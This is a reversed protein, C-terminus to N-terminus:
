SESEKEYDDHVLEGQANCNWCEHDADYDYGSGGCPRCYLHGESVVYGCEKTEKAALEYWDDADM